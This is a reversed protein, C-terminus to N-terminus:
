LNTSPPAYVLCTPWVAIVVRVEWACGKGGDGDGDSGGGGCWGYRKRGDKAEKREWYGGFVARVTRKNERNTERGKGKGKRPGKM